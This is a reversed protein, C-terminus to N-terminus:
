NKPTFLCFFISTRESAFADKVRKQGREGRAGRGGAQGHRILRENGTAM